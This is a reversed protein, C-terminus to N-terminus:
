VCAYRNVLLSMVIDHMQTLPSFGLPTHGLCELSTRLTLHEREIQQTTRKAPSHVKPLLQRVSAGLPGYLLPHAWFAGAAGAV